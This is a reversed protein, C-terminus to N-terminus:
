SPQSVRTWRRIVAALEAGDTLVPLHAGSPLTWAEGGALEAVKQIWPLPALRDHRGRVVITPVSLTPVAAALDYHRVAEQARAMSRFTTRLYQRTLTPILRPPEWVASCIWRVALSAWSSAHPDGCPGILVLGAVLDPRALAAAVVILCSSSHGVLVTQKSDLEAVLREALAETRLDDGRAAPAGFGPLTVVEHPEKLQRLVPEVSEPGLGLGPVFVVIPATM